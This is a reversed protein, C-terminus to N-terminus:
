ERCDAGAGALPQNQKLTRHKQTKDEQLLWGGM